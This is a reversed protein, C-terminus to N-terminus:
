YYIITIKVEQIAQRTQECTLSDQGLCKYMANFDCQIYLTNAAISRSAEKEPGPPPMHMEPPSFYVEVPSMNLENIEPPNMVEIAVDIDELVQTQIEPEIYQISDSLMKMHFNGWKSAYFHPFYDGLFDFFDKFFVSAPSRRMKLEKQQSQSIGGDADEFEQRVYERFSVMLERNNQVTCSTHMLRENVGCENCLSFCCNRNQISLFERQIAGSTSVSPKLKMRKLKRRDLTNM